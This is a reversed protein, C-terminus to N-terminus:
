SEASITLLFTYSRCRQVAGNRGSWRQIKELYPFRRKERREEKKKRRAKTKVKSRANRSRRRRRRM